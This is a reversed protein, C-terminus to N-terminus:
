SGQPMALAPVTCLEGSTLCIRYDYGFERGPQIDGHWHSERLVFAFGGPLDSIAIRLVWGCDPWYVYNGTGHLQHFQQNIELEVEISSGHLQNLALAQM